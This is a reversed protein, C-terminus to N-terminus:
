KIKAMSVACLVLAPVQVHQLKGRADMEADRERVGGGADDVGEELVQGIHGGGDQSVGVGLHSTAGSVLKSTHFLNALTRM